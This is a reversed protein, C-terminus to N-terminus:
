FDIPEGPDEAADFPTLKNLLRMPEAEPTKAMQDDVMRRYMPDLSRLSDVETHTVAFSSLQRSLAAEGCERCETPEGTSARVLVEYDAGCADCRYNHLPM